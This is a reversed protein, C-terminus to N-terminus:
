AGLTSSGDISLEAALIEATTLDVPRTIKVAAESGPVCFVRFGLREALAADDTAPATVASHAQELVARRFGQPTRVARM